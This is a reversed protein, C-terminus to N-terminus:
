LAIDDQATRHRAIDTHHRAIYTGHPVRDTVRRLILFAM